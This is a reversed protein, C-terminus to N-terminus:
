RPQPVPLSFAGVLTKTRASSMKGTHIELAQPAWPPIQKEQKEAERHKRHRVRPPTGLQTKVGAVGKVTAEDRHNVASPRNQWLRPTM